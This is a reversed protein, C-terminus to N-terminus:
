KGVNSIKNTKRKILSDIISVVYVNITFSVQWVCYFLRFQAWVVQSVKVACRVKKSKSEKNAQAPDSQCM